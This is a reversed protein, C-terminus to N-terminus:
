GVVERRPPTSAWRTSARPKWAPSDESLWRRMLTAMQEDSLEVVAEPTSRAHPHGMLAMYVERDVKWGAGGLAAAMEIRTAEPEVRVHRFSLDAQYKESLAM